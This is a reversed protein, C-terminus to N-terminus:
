VVSAPRPTQALGVAAQHQRAPQGLRRVRGGLKTHDLGRIRGDAYVRRDHLFYDHQENKRM